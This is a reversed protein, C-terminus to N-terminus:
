KGGCRKIEVVKELDQNQRRINKIEVRGQGELVGKKNQQKIVV